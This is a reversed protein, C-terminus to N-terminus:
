NQCELEIGPTALLINGVAIAVAAYVFQEGGTLSSGFLHLLLCPGYPAVSTYSIEYAGGFNRKM